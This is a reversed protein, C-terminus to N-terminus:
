EATLVERKVTAADYGFRRVGRFFYWARFRSMGRDRLGKKFREDAIKRWPKVPLIGARILQYMGDHELGPVQNSDDDIAPGSCGDWAYGVDQVVEGTEYVRLFPSAEWGYLEKGKSVFVSEPPYPPDFVPGINFQHTETLQYKGKMKYFIM